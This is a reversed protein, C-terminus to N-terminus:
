FYVLKDEKKTSIVSKLAEEAEEKGQKIPWIHFGGKYAREINWNGWIGTEDAHGDYIVSHGGLYQKCMACTKAVTDYQGMWTYIGVLDVGEGVVRGAEFHLQCSMPHRSAGPGYEYTYFGVWEGSPFLPHQDQEPM